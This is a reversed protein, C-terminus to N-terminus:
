VTPHSLRQKNNNIDITTKHFLIFTKGLFWELFGCFTECLFERFCISSLNEPQDREQVPFQQSQELSTGVNRLLFM